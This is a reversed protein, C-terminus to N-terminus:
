WQIYNQHNTSTHHLAVELLTEVIDQHDTKNSSFVPSVLVLGGVQKLDSVLKIVYHEISNVM